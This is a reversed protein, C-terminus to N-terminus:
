VMCHQAVPSRSERQKQLHSKSTASTWLQGETYSVSAPNQQTENQKGAFSFGTPHGPQKGSTKKPCDEWYRIFVEDQNAPRKPNKTTMTNKNNTQKNTKEPVGYCFSFVLCNKKWQMLGSKKLCPFLVLPFLQMQTFIKLYWPTSSIFCGHLCYEFNATPNFWM